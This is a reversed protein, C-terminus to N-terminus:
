QRSSQGLRRIDREEKAVALDLLGFAVVVVLSAVFM